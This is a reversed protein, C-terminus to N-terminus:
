RLPEYAAPLHLGFRGVLAVVDSRDKATLDLDSHSRTQEELLADVGWGGDVWPDAGTEIIVDLLELVAQASM